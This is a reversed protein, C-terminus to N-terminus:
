ETGSDIYVSGKGAARAHSMAEGARRFIDGASEGSPPVWVSGGVSISLSGSTLFPDTKVAEVFRDAVTRAAVADAGPLLAAFDDAEYRALIDYERKSRRMCNAIAELVSDGMAVGLYANLDGMGDVDVRLIAYSDWARTSRGHEREIEEKFRRQNLLGTLTDNASLEEVRAQLQKQANEASRERTVDRVLVLRGVIDAERVIPFSTWVVRRPRPRALEFEAVVRPPEQLDWGGASLLFADGDSTARALARLVDDRSMGVHAGPDIGFLEGVRRGIMRCLAERDFVLAGEDAAELVALLAGYALMDWDSDNM